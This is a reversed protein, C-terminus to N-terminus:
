PRQPDDAYIRAGPDGSVADNVFQSGPQAKNGAAGNPGLTLLVKGSPQQNNEISKNFDYFFMLWLDSRHLLQKNSAIHARGEFEALRPARCHHRGHPLTQQHMAIRRALDLLGHGAITMSFFFLHPLHNLHQEFEAARRAAIGSIGQSHCDAMRLL